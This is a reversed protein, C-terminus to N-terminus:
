PGKRSPEVSSLARIKRMGVRLDAWRRVPESLTRELDGYARAQDAIVDLRGAHDAVNAPACADDHRRLTFTISTRPAAARESSPGGWHLVNANWVLASGAPIPLAIGEGDAAEHSRLDAPYAADRDLPVVYMCSNDVTAESIAIWVNVSDPTRPDRALRYSGRHPPWGAYAPGVPVRFAWADEIVDYRATLASSIVRAVRVGIAWVAPYAYVFLPPLGEHALADIASSVAQREAASAVEAITIWGARAIAGCADDPARLAEPGADGALGTLAPALGEFFRVDDLKTLLDALDHDDM